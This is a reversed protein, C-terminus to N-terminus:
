TGVSGCLEKALERAEKHKTDIETLFSHDPEIISLGISAPNEYLRNVFRVLGNLVTVTISQPKLREQFQRLGHRERLSDLEALESQKLVNALALVRAVIENGHILVSFYAFSSLVDPAVGQSILGSDKPVDVSFSVLYNFIARRFLKNPYLAGRYSLRIRSQLTFHVPPGTDAWLVDKHLMGRVQEDFGHTSYGWQRFEERLDAVKVPERVSILRQLIRVGIIRDLHAGEAADYYPSYVTSQDPYYMKYRRLALAILCHDVTLRIPDRFGVLSSTIGSLGPYAIIKSITNFLERINYNSWQVLFAYSKSDSLASDLIARCIQKADSERKAFMNSHITADFEKPLLYAIRRSITSKINPARLYMNWGPVINFPEYSSFRAYTHNRMAFVVMFPNDVQVHIVFTLLDDLVRSPLQDVNDIIILASNRNSKGLARFRAIAFEGPEKDIITAILENKRAARTSEPALALLHREVSFIRDNEFVLSDLAFLDETALHREFVLFVQEAFYRHISMLPDAPSASFNKWDLYFVFPRGSEQAPLHQTSIHKLFTSKGVGVDGVLRVLRHDEESNLFSLFMLEEEVLNTMSTSRNVVPPAQQGKTAQLYFMEDFTHREHEYVHIHPEPFKDDLVTGFIDIYQRYLEWMPLETEFPKYKDTTRM